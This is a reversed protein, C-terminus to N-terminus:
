VGPVAQRLHAGYISKPTNETHLLQVSISREIGCSVNIIHCAPGYLDAIRVNAARCRDKSHHLVIGQATHDLHGRRCRGCAAGLVAICCRIRAKSNRKSIGGATLANMVRIRETTQESDVLRYWLVPLGGGRGQGDRPRLLTNRATGAGVPRSRSGGRHGDAAATIARGLPKSM